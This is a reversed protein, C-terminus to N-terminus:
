LAGSKKWNLYKSTLSAGLKEPQTDVVPIGQLKLKAHTTMRTHLYDSVACYDLAEQLTNVPRALLKELINERLSTVLVLHQKRLHNIALTLDENDENRLNTLIIVLTQRKEKKLLEFAAAQYDASRNCSELDYSANLLSKLQGLGKVPPLYRPQHSAFTMLGVADGQRLAIYSLLLCANLAHDFHSLEGDQSRMHQGCDHM